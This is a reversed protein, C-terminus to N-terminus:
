LPVTAQKDHRNPYRPLKKTWWYIETSQPAAARPPVRAQAATALHLTETHQADRADFAATSLRRNHEWVGFTREGSPTQLVGLGHYANRMFGGFYAAGSAFEYVGFGEAMRAAFEGSYRDGNALELIGAGEEQGGRYGGLYRGGHEGAAFEYVGFGERRNDVYEGSYKGKADEYVGVGETTGGRREGAFRGHPSVAVALKAGSM